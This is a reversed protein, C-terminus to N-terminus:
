QTPPHACLSVAIDRVFKAPLRNACHFWPMGQGNRGSIRPGSRGEVLREHPWCLEAMQRAAVRVKWNWSTGFSRMDMHCRSSHRAWQRVVPLDFFSSNAPGVLTTPVNQATALKLVAIALSASVNSAIVWKEDFWSLNMAGWPSRRSHLHSVKRPKFGQSPAEVYLALFRRGRLLQCARHATRTYAMDYTLMMPNMGLRRFERPLEPRPAQTVILVM